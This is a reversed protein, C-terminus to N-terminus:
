DMFKINYKRKLINNRHIQLSRDYARQTFRNKYEHMLANIEQNVSEQESGSLIMFLEDMFDHELKNIISDIELSNNKHYLLKDKHEMLCQKVRIDDSKEIDSNIKDFIIGIRDSISRQPLPTTEEQSNYRDISKEVINSIYKLNRIRNFEQGQGSLFAESIASLVIQLPINRKKWSNILEYDLSSLMIGKGAHNLFYEEVSKLYSSDTPM